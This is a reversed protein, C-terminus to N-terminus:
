RSDYGYKGLPCLEPRIRAAGNEKTSKWFSSGAHLTNSCGGYGLVLGDAEFAVFAQHLSEKKDDYNYLVQFLPLASLVRLRDYTTDYGSASASNEWGPVRTANDWYAVTEPSHSHEPYLTTQSMVVFYPIQLHRSGEPYTQCTKSKKDEWACDCISNQQVYPCQTQDIFWKCEELGTTVESFTDSRELGGFLLWSSYRTLLYLDNTSRTTLGSVYEARLRSHVMLSKKQFKIFFEQAAHAGETYEISVFGMVVATITINVVLLPTVILVVTWLFLPSCKSKKAENQTTPATISPAESQVLNSGIHIFNSLNHDLETGNTTPELPSEIIYAFDDKGRSAYLESLAKQMTFVNQVEHHKGKESKVMLAGSFSSVMKNFEAVVESLETRPTCSGEKTAPKEESGKNIQQEKTPDGFNCVIASAIENMSTLPSTLMNAMFFIILTSVGLGIVGAIISYFSVRRVKEDVVTNVDEVVSFFESIATSVIVLYLPQYLPDYVRPVPPIPYGSVVFEGDTVTFHEYEERVENPDWQSGYDVLNHLEEYSEQTMGLGALYVPLSGSAVDPKSSALVIGFEDWGIFSVESQNTFKAKRLEEEVDTISIGVYTCAIFEKTLRDYVARGIALLLSKGDDWSDLGSTADFTSPNLAQNMCWSRELPNYARTSVSEGGLHCREIMVQTGISRSEIYPNAEKMWDCGASVYSSSMNVAYHPYTISAGAGSNSFYIGLDRIGERSEFLAKLLPVLDKGKRYIQETTPSPAVVGGTAMDNNADTCNPWFEDATPDTVSPDCIGQVLFAANATSVPRNSYFKRKQLHEEYNDENVNPKLQWELPMPQGFVPYKRSHSNMDLFPVEDDSDNPYGSFRDQTAEVIIDVVDLPFLRQYLIDALYTATRGQSERGLSQFSEKNTAKINEGAVVVVIICVAVVITVTIANITGFSLMLQTRLSYGPRLCLMRLLDSKEELGDKEIKNSDDSVVSACDNVAPQLFLRVQLKRLHLSSKKGDTQRTLSATTTNGFAVSRNEDEDQQGPQEVVGNMPPSQISADAHSPKMPEPEKEGGDASEKEQIVDRATESPGKEIDSDMPVM